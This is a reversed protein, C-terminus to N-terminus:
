RGVGTLRHRSKIRNKPIETTDDAMDAKADLFDARDFVFLPRLAIRGTYTEFEVIEVPPLDRVWEPTEPTAAKAAALADRLHQAIEKFTPSAKENFIPIELLSEVAQVLESTPAIPSLIRVVDEQRAIMHDGRKSNPKQNVFRAMIAMTEEHSDDVCVRLRGGIAFIDGVKLSKAECEEFGVPRARLKEVEAHLLETEERLVDVEFGSRAKLKATLEANDAELKKMKAAEVYDM